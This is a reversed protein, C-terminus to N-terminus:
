EKRRFGRSSHIVGKMGRRAVYDIFLDYYKRVRFNMDNNDGFNVVKLKIEESCLERISIGRGHSHWRSAKGLIEAIEDARKQRDDVTVPRRSTETETWNKFKYCPLWARLLSKSHEISQEIHFLRAPDFKQVLYALEARANSPGLRNITELLERYKALYGLGPLLQGTGPDFQPDIPGLVSYYDMYIEDGSMVLITGASYAYNPVIFEVTNYHRRMVAVMREVTEIYGGTTEILVVLKDSTKTRKLAEIEQRLMDDLPQIIQSKIAIVDADLGAGLKSNAGKLTSEVLANAQTLQNMEELSRRRSTPSHGLPARAVIGRRASQGGQARRDEGIRVRSRGQNGEWFVGEQRRRSGNRREGVERSPQRRKTTLPSERVGTCRQMAAVRQRPRIGFFSIPYSYALRMASQNDLDTM